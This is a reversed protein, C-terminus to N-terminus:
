GKYLDHGGVEFFVVLVYGDYEQFIIRIDGTVWIARKDSMFGCLSHNRLSVALPDERFIRIVRKVKKKIPEPLKKYQKEYRRHFKIKM